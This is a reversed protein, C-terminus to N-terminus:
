FTNGDAFPGVFIDTFLLNSKKINGRNEEQPTNRRYVVLENNVSALCKDAKINLLADVEAQDYYYVTEIQINPM